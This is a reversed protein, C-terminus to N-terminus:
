SALGEYVIRWGAPEHRWYTKITQAKRNPHAQPAVEQAIVERWESEDSWGLVSIAEMEPLAQKDARIDRWRPSGRDLGKGSDRFLDSYLFQLGKAQGQPQPALYQRLTAEFENQGPQVVSPDVWEIHPLIVVRSGKLSPLSLIKKLEPNSLVVCGETSLPPRSYQESPTGHLWIGSGTRNLMQDVENPYNLVLAGPGYFDPLTPGSIMRQISYVGVPTRLDGENRKGVGQTGVSVYTEFLLVLESFHGDLARNAFWYLRSHQADVVVVHPVHSPDIRYVGLPQKNVIHERLPANLRQDAEHLLQKLQLDAAERNPWLDHESWPSELGANLLEAYWLQGLQFHPFREVMQTALETALDSRGRKLHHDVARLWDEPQESTPALDPARDASFWTWELRPPGSPSGQTRLAKPWGQVAHEAFALGLLTVTGLVVWLGWHPRLRRRDPGESSPTQIEIPQDGLTGM